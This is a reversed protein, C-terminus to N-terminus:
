EESVTTVEQGDASNEPLTAEEEEPDLYVKESEETMVFQYAKMNRVFNLGFFNTMKQVQHLTFLPDKQSSSSPSQGNEDDAVPANDIASSPELSEDVYQEPSVPTVNFNVENMKKVFMEVAGQTTLTAEQKANSESVNCYIEFISMVISMYSIAQVFSLQCERCLVLNHFIYEAVITRRWPCYSAPTTCGAKIIDWSEIESENKELFTEYMKETITLLSTKLRPSQDPCVEGETSPVEAGESAM